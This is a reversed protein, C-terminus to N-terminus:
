IGFGMDKAIDLSSKEPPNVSENILNSLQKYLEEPSRTGSRYSKLLKGRWNTIYKSGRALYRNLTKPNAGCAILISRFIREDFSNAFYDKYSVFKNQLTSLQETHKSWADGWDWLYNYLEDSATTLHRTIERWDQEHMQNVFDPWVHPNYKRGNTPLYGRLEQQLKTREKLNFLGHALNTRIQQTVVMVHTRHKQPVPLEAPCLDESLLLKCMFKCGYDHYVAYLGISFITYADQWSQPRFSFIVQDTKLFAFCRTKDVLHKNLLELQDKQLMRPLIPLDSM